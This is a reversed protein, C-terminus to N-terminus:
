CRLKSINFSTWMVGEFKLFRGSLGRLELVPYKGGQLKSFWVYCGRIAKSTTKLTTKDVLATVVHNRTSHRDVSMGDNRDHKRAM